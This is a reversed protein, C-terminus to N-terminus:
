ASKVPVEEVVEPRRWHEIPVVNPSRFWRYCGSWKASTFRHWDEHPWTLKRLFDEDEKSYRRVLAAVL